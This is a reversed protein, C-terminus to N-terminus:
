WTYRGGDYAVWVVRRYGTTYMSCPEGPASVSQTFLTDILVTRSESARAPSGSTMATM